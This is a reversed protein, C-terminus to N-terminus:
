CTHEHYDCPNRFPNEDPKDGNHVECLRNMTDLLFKRPLSTERRVATSCCHAWADIIFRLMPANPPLNKYATRITTKDCMEPYHKQYIRFTDMTDRRLQPVDFKDSFIHLDVIENFRKSGSDRGDFEEGDSNLVERGYLWELFFRFKDSNVDDLNLHKERAECFHGSFANDFFESVTTRYERPIIFDEEGDLDKGVTIRVVTSGSLSNCTLM